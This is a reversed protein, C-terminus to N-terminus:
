PRVTVSPSRDRNQAKTPYWTGRKMSSSYAFVVGYPPRIAGLENVIAIEVAIVSLRKLVVSM